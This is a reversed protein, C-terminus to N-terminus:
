HEMGPNDDAPDEDGSGGEPSEIITAEYTGRPGKLTIRKEKPAAIAAVLDKNVAVLENVSDLTEKAAGVIEVAAEAVAETADTVQAVKGDAGMFIQSPGGDGSGGKAGSKKKGAGGTTAEIHAANDAQRSAVVLEGDTKALNRKHENDTAKDKRAEENAFAVKKREEDHQHAEDALAMKQKQEAAPDPQGQQEPPGNGGYLGPAQALQAAVQAAAIAIQNEVQPDMPPLVPEGPQAALNVPIAIGAAQYARQAYLYALHQAIHAAMPGGIIKSAEPGGGFEPNQMFSMHVAIHAEHAQDPYAQAPRGTLMMMNETIPDARPVKRPDRLITDIDPTRLAEHMRRHVEYLDYLQPAAVALELGGQAIAIRQTQSFINPDSAPVIDVRKDYDQAMIMRSAGHVEFPYGEEPLYEFNLKALLQFEEGQSRHLRKHIASFVKQGQEILAVTTGVPGMNSADGVSAETISAFRRGADVLIELMQAMAPSPEKFPPTYFSKSLEEATQGSDKYVGPELTVTGSAAGGGDTAKFGGQLSAFAASDLVARVTGTAADCLSGILHVLGYGYFGLGPLYKHHVFWMRKTPVLKDDDELWNRRIALTRQTASDVTVVYPLKIGTPDENEDLHEYGRLDLEVHQELITHRHDDDHYVRVRGEAKDIDEKLDRANGSSADEASPPALDIQRWEGTYMKVKARNRSVYYRYTCRPAEQLSTAVYPVIFDQAQILRSVNKDADEDHFVRKFASGALPLVFLMQDVEWFFTPDEVTLMYNMHAEVRDRQEEKERTKDGVVVGKVPGTPPFIEDIARAQFQVAAEALLPYVVTSAGKFPGVRTPVETLGLIELGRELKRDWEARSDLDVKTTEIVDMAIRTLYGEDEIVEALNGAHGMELDSVGSSGDLDVQIDSSDDFGTVVSPDGPTAGMVNTEPFRVLIDGDMGSGDDGREPLQVMPGDDVPGAARRSGGFRFPGRQIPLAM